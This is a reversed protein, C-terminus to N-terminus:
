KLLSSYISIFKKAVIDWSYNKAVFTRNHKGMKKRLAPRKLLAATKDALDSSDQQRALMGKGGGRLIEGIGGADTGIVAKGCAMAELLALGQGETGSKSALSPAVVVDALNYYVGLKHKPMAGLFDVMAAVGLQKATKELEKRSPGEGIVLLKISPVKAALRPLSKILYSVGKQETLRGVFLVISRNKYHKPRRQTRPRFFATDVGMPAIIIKGKLKPFRRKLESATANSNATCVDCQELVIRQMARFIKGRLAFVDSGHASVVLPVRLKKKFFACLLGHPLIWHAHILDIKEKKVIKRLFIFEALLLFLLQIRALVSKRMNPLMGGGYCLKELRSPLFYQFRRVDLKGMRERKKSGPHHPAVVSVEFREAVRNSLEFVFSPTADNKWRPFTSTVILAKKM